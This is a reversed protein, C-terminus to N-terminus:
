RFFERIQGSIRDRERFACLTLCGIADYSVMFSHHPKRGGIANLSVIAERELVIAKTASLHSMYAITKLGRQVHVAFSVDIGKGFSAKYESIIWLGINEILNSRQLQLWIKM